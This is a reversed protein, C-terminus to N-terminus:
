NQIATLEDIKKIAPNDPHDWAAICSQYYKMAAATDGTRYFLEAQLYDLKALDSKLVAQGRLGRAADLLSQILEWDPRQRKLLLQAYEMKGHYMHCVQSILKDHSPEGANVTNNFGSINLILRCYDNIILKYHMNEWRDRPEQGSLLRTLYDRNAPTLTAQNHGSLADMYVRRYLGYDVIGYNHSLEYTYYIPYKGAKIFEDIKRDRESQGDHIPSFIRNSLLVGKSNYITVDPRVGLIKNAYILSGTDLDGQAFLVANQELGNLITEAYDIAWRDGARYNETAGYIFIPVLLLIAVGTKVLKPDPKFSYNRCLFDMMMTAGLAIWIACAAYAILPYVRFINRHLLDFDFGLLLILLLTNGIFIMTLAACFSLPWKKWQGIFGTLMLGLGFYGFQNKLEQGLFGIFSLKDLWGASPSHDQGVYAERSLYFWFDSWSEIAGFFSIQPDTQSRLVMWAYPLLGAAFGVIMHPLSAIFKQRRCWILILLGPSSLIILPWHNSLALGYLIALSVLIKRSGNHKLNIIALLLLAYFLFVNLTYVEAIISQSWFVGSLGFSIAAISASTLDPLYEYVILWISLCALAGFLGSLLHVRFAVDGVPLYTALHGLLTFLPYGPPHAIGNFYSALVFYGDDELVVSNPASGIYIIFIIVAVVCAHIWKNEAFTASQANM